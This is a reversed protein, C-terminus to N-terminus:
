TLKAVSDNYLRQYDINGDNYYKETLVLGAILEFIIFPPNVHQFIDDKLLLSYKSSLSSAWFVKSAYSLDQLDINGFKIKLLTNLSENNTIPAEVNWKDCIEQIQKISMRVRLKSLKIQYNVNKQNKIRKAARKLQNELVITLISNERNTTYYELVACADYYLHREVKSKQDQYFGLLLLDVILELVCVITFSKFKDKLHKATHLYGENNNKYVSSWFLKAQYSLQDVEQKDMNYNDFVIENLADNDLITISIGIENFKKIIKRRKILESQFDGVTYRDPVEASVVTMRQSTRDFNSKGTILKGTSAKMIRNTSVPAKNIPLGIGVSTMGYCLVIFM